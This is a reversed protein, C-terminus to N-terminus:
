SEDLIKAGFLSMIFASIGALILYVMGGYRGVFFWLIMAVLFAVTQSMYYTFNIIRHGYKDLNEFNM